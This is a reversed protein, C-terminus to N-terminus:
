RHPRIETRTLFGDRNDDLWAFRKAMRPMKEGVEVKSLKGDRHLDAAAYRAEFRKNREAERLPKQQERWARLETRVIHGDRNADIADFHKDLRGARRGKDALEARSIRGDANADLSAIGRHHGGQHKGQHHKGQYPEKVSWCRSPPKLCRGALSPELGSPKRIEPGLRSELQSGAM